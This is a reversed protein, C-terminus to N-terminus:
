SSNGILKYTDALIAKSLGTDGSRRAETVSEGFDKFCPKPTYEILLTINNAVLGHRLYWQVLPIVLLIDRSFYSGLLTRRPANLVNRKEAYAQMHSGIDLLKLPATESNVSPNKIIHIVTM